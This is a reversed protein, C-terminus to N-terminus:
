TLQFRIHLCLAYIWVLYVRAEMGNVLVALLTSAAVMIFSPKGIALTNIRKLTNYILGVLVSTHYRHPEAKGSIHLIHIYSNHTTNMGLIYVARLIYLKLLTVDALPIRCTTCRM